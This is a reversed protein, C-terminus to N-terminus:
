RNKRGFDDTTLLNNGDQDMMAFWASVQSLFEEETVMGNNDVDNFERSMAKSVGQMQGKHGGANAQMDANRTEDFLDYETADLAGNEDQDFMYFVDSRKETAEAVTVQGDENLDWNELFHAGPIGQQAVVPLALAAALLFSLPFPSTM